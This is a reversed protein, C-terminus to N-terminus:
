IRRAQPYAQDLQRYFVVLQERGVMYNDRYHVPGTLANLAGVIRWQRNDGGARQAVPAPHPAEPGGDPAPDPWRTYGMEDLFLIVVNEPQQAAERLCDLLHTQKDLYAPDPSWHQVCASRLRLGQRALLRGVGSLRYGRLWPLSVRITRLTWRSPPPRPPGV